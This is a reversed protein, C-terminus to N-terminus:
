CWFALEPRLGVDEDESAGTLMAGLVSGQFCSLALSPEDGFSCKLYWYWGPPSGLLAGLSAGLARCLTIKGFTVRVFTRRHNLQDHFPSQGLTYLLLM